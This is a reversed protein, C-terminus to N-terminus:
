DTLHESLLLRLEDPLVPKHLIRYGSSEAEKIRSPETDGTIIIAPIKHGQYLQHVKRIVDIGTENNRLRYDAMIMNLSTNEDKMKEIADDGSSAVVVHCGWAKLLADLSERIEEDDDIVLITQDDFFKFDTLFESDNCEFSDNTVVPMELAFLSGKERVSRVFLPMGVLKAMRKVIALGLGLGKSRDRETNELQHFEKFIGQLKDEEIGIGSDYVALLVKGNHRRCGVIVGGKHTYRIANSILNRLIREIIKRDTNACLKTNVFKIRLNKESAAVEFEAKLTDFLHQIYFLEPEPKVVGADLKSIDLLSDLLGNLANSSKQIKDVIIKEDEKEIRSKLAGLFLGIAHLPQRLDHSAAALFKTKSINASEAKEKQKTLQEVLEKNEFRLNISDRLMRNHVRIISFLAFIFVFLLLGFVNYYSDEISLYRWIMTTYTPIVFLYYAIPHASLAALSGMSMAIVILTLINFIHLDEPTFFVVSVAAWSLGSLFAFFTFVKGWQIVESPQKEHKKFQRLSLYRVLSLCYIISLWIYVTIDAVENIFVLSIGSATALVGILASGAQKYLVKILEVDVDSATQTTALNFYKLYTTNFNNGM